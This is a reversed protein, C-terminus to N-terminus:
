PGNETRTHHTRSGEGAPSGAEQSRLDEVPELELVGHRPEAHRELLVRAVRERDRIQEPPQPGVEDDLYQVMELRSTVNCM